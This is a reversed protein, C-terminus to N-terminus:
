KHLMTTTETEVFKYDEAILFGSIILFSIFFLSLKLYGNKYVKTRDINEGYIKKDNELM